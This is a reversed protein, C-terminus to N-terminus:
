EMIEPDLEHKSEKGPSETLLDKENLKIWQVFCPSYEKKDM